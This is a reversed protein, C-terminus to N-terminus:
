ISSSKEGHAMSSGGKSFISGISGSSLTESSPMRTSFSDKNSIFDPRLESSSSSPALTAMSSGVPYPAVPIDALSSASPSYSLGGMPHDFKCTPGFKCVGHQAYFTCTPAGPRLPFGIPSLTCNTQPISWGPGPPHHYKCTSGFKCDGTRMYYQCEPQGPREPYLNEKQSSSSPGTPPSLPPYSVPYASASPSLQGSIGYVSGTQVPQQGGPSVVSSSPAPYPSWGPVSVVGPSLLMPGYPGQMYPAPLVSPPRAVQWNAMTAYPQASPISPSQASPYYSSAPSPVSLGAPQPHHFKCTAGFKCQGTRVYYSCEKEGPRLPYGFYNLSVPRASGSGQRPHHYKCTPGFKCTGTRLFYQCVPEGVREPYDMLGGRLGGAGLVRERPHNYRCRDGYGCTGTRMFYACDPEGPREPYAVVVAADGPGGLGLQWMSEELGTDPDPRPIGSGSGRGYLEM